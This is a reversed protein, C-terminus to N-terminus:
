LPSKQTKSYSLQLIQDLFPLLWLKKNNGITNQAKHAMNSGCTDWYIELFFVFAYVIMVLGDSYYRKKNLEPTHRLTYQETWIYIFISKHTNVWNLQGICVKAALLPLSPDEPRMRACEKFVSVAGVGQFACMCVCMCVCVRWTVSLNHNMHMCAALKGAAVCSM